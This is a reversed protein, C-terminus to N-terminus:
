AVTGACRRGAFVYQDWGNADALVAVCAGFGLPANTAFYAVLATVAVVEVAGHLM